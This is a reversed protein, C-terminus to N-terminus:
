VVVYSAPPFYYIRQSSPPPRLTPLIPFPYSHFSRVLRYLLVDRPLEYCQAAPVVM